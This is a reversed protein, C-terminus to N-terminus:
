CVEYQCPLPWGQATHEHPQPGLPVARECQAGTREILSRPMQLPGCSDASQTLQLRNAQLQWKHAFATLDYIRLFHRITNWYFSVRAYVRM